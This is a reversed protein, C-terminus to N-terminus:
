GQVIAARLYLLVKRRSGEDRDLGAIWASRVLDAVDNRRIEPPFALIGQLLGLPEHEVLVVHKRLDRPQHEIAQPRGCRRLRDIDPSHGAFVPSACPSSIVAPWAACGPAGRTGSMLTIM